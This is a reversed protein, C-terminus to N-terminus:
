GNKNSVCQFTAKVSSVVPGNVDGLSVHVSLHLLRFTTSFTLPQLDRKEAASSSRWREDIFRPIHNASSRSAWVQPGIPVTRGVPKGRSWFWRLLEEVDRRMFGSRQRASLVELKEQFEDGRGGLVELWADQASFWTREQGFLSTKQICSETEAQVSMFTEQTKNAEAHIMKDPSVQGQLQGTLLERDPQLGAEEANWVGSCLPIRRLFTRWYLGTCMNTYPSLLGCWGGVWGEMWVKGADLHTWVTGYNLVPRSSWPM